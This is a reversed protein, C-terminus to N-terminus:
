VLPIHVISQSIITNQTNEKYQCIYSIKSTLKIDLIPSRSLSICTELEIRKASCSISVLSKYCTSKLQQQVRMQQKNALLINLILVKQTGIKLTEALNVRLIDACDAHACYKIQRHNIFEHM